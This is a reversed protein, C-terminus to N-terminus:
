QATITFEPIPTYEPTWACGGLTPLGSLANVHVQAIFPVAYKPIQVRFTYTYNGYHCWMDGPWEGRPEMELGEGIPVLVQYGGFPYNLEDHVFVTIYVPYHLWAYSQFDVTINVYGLHDVTTPNVTVKVWEVLYDFHFRLTDNIVICAVDVSATVNWIGFLDEGEFCPWPIRYNTHATGNEDTIATLVTVLNGQPDRIEFAVVKNQQPWMNYTVNAYLEVQKQPWFMDSPQNTGQGGYPNPYQTYVDIYRGTNLLYGYIKYNGMIWESQPKAEIFEEDFNEFVREPYTPWVYTVVFAKPTVITWPDELQVTSKFTITCLSREACSLGTSDPFTTMATWNWVVAEVLTWKHTANMGAGSTAFFTGDPAWAPNKLFPGEAIGIFDFGSTRNWVFKFQYAILKADAVINNICVDVTFNENPTGMITAGKPWGQIVDEPCVELYPKPIFVIKSYEYTGHQPTYGIPDGAGDTIKTPFSSVQDLTLPCTLVSAPAQTINFKIQCLTGNGTFSPQGIGKSVAWYVRDSGINKGTEIATAGFIMDPTRYIDTDVAIELLTPDWTVNVQWGALNTVSTVTINVLFYGLPYDIATPPPYENTFNVTTTGYFGPVGYTETENIVSVYTTPIASVPFVTALSLLLLV